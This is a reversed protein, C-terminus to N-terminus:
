RGIFNSGIKLLGQNTSSAANILSQGAGTVTSFISTGVRGKQELILKNWDLQAGANWSDVKFKENVVNSRHTEEERAVNSRNTEMERAVNSRNTEIERVMNSREIETQARSQLLERAQNARRTEALQAYGLGIQSRSIGETAINHRKTEALNIRGQALSERGQAEVEANRRVDEAYKWYAIQNGTM